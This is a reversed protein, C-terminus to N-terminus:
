HYNYLHFFASGQSASATQPVKLGTLPMTLCKVTCYTSWLPTRQELSQMPSYIDLCYILTCTVCLTHWVFKMQNSYRIPFNAKHVCWEMCRNSYWSSTLTPHRAIAADTIESLCALFLAKRSFLFFVYHHFSWKAPNSCGKVVLSYMICINFTNQAKFSLWVWMCM